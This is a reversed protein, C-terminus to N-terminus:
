FQVRKVEAGTESMNGKITVQTAESFNDPTCVSETGDVAICISEENFFLPAVFGMVGEQAYVLHWKGAEYPPPVSKLLFGQYDFTYEREPAVDGNNCKISSIQWQGDVAGLTVIAQGQRPGDTGRPLMIIEASTDLKFLVRTAFREATSDCMVPDNAADAKLTKLEERAAESIKASKFLESEYPDTGETKYLTLWEDYFGLVFDLPDETPIQVPKEDPAEDKSNFFVLAIIVLVLLGVALIIKNKM